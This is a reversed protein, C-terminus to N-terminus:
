THPKGVLLPVHEAYSVHQYMAILIRRTEQYLKEDLWHPNLQHLKAAIYNHVRLFIISMSSLEPDTNIRM